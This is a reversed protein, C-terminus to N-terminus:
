KYTKNVRSYDGNKDLFVLSSGPKKPFIVLLSINTALFTNEEVPILQHRENDIQIFLKKYENTIVVFHNKWDYQGAYSSFDKDATDYIEYASPKFYDWNYEEAVARQIYNFLDETNVSNAMIVVAQEKKVSGFIVSTFGYNQGTHKFVIDDSDQKWNLLTFGLKDLNGDRNFVRNTMEKSILTNTGKSHDTLLKHTFRALDDPTTWIGGAAKFTIINYPQPQLNASYGTAKTALLREPIPQIFSTTKMGSPKLVLEDIVDEFKKNTADELLKELVLYGPNSYIYKSGPVAVLKAAPHKSPQEGKLTQEITPLTEYPMYNPGYYRNFGSTHGILRRVTVKEKQTFENVPVKWGKLKKNVDEDLNLIGQEVLKLAAMATVPKGLSAGTFVTNKDVKISDKLNAYGYSKSWSIEGKDVFVIRLGPVKYQEMLDEVRQPQMQNKIYYFPKLNNVVNERHAIAPDLIASKSDNEITEKCSLFNFVFFLILFTQKM